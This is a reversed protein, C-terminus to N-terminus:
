VGSIAELSARKSRQNWLVKLQQEDLTELDVLSKAGRDVIERYQTLISRAAQLAQEVLRKVESDITRATSESYDANKIPMHSGLLPTSEREFTIPGLFDSMGYRTVMARAIETAKDLDDAAGTSIDDFFLAEAARGGLLVTIKRELERRNMLYRDETPRRFTYGLAAVGRPVITVKHVTETDGFALSLIAHGMEHYAVRIKEDQSLLRSRRELGAVV